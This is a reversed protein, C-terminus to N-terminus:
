DIIMGVLIVEYENKEERERTMIMMPRYESSLLLYSFIKVIGVIKVKWNRSNSYIGFM